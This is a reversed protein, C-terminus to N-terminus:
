ARLPIGSGRANMSTFVEAISVPDGAVSAATAALAKFARAAASLNHSFVHTADPSEGWVLIDAFGAPLPREGSVVQAYAGPGMILVCRGAGPLGPDPAEDALQAGLIQVPRADGPELLLVSVRWGSMTRDVILGGANRVLEAVDRALVQMRYGVAGCIDESTM